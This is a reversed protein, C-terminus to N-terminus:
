ARLMASPPPSERVASVSLAMCLPPRHAHARPFLSSVPPLCAPTLIVCLRHCVEARGVCSPRSSHGRQRWRCCLRSSICRGTFASRRHGPSGAETRRGSRHAPSTSGPDTSHPGRSSPGQTAHHGRERKTERRHCLDGRVAARAGRVPCSSGSAWLAAQTYGTAPAASTSRERTEPQVSM